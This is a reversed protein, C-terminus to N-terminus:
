PKSFYFCAQDGKMMLNLTHAKQGFKKLEDDTFENIPDTGRLPKERKYLETGWFQFATSDFVVKQTKFGSGEALQCLGKVSPIHLHRPADLQVWDAGESKWIEADAVPVRILMKGGPNLTEFAKALVKAPESMHEFSHHMMLLDFKEEVEFISKRELKFEPGLKKETELYPDYGRLHRFGAAHMEYLLQGNGCGIDAIADDTGIGAIAMWEGFIPKFAKGQTLLFLQYRIKKLFNKFPNATVLVQHAYYSEPYYKDLNEPVDVLQISECKPCVAVEFLDGMGFMREQAAMLTPGETQRCFACVYNPKIPM